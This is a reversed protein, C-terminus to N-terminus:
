KITVKCKATKGNVAYVYIYVTGKKIGKVIGTSSVTAIKKNGTKWTVKKNSASTPNVTPILRYTKGKKLTMSTKNLKVSTVPKIVTVTCTAKKSGSVTTVTIKATGKAKATVKGNSSVTAVKTNSSKWKVASLSYSPYVYAWLQYTKGINITARNRTMYVGSPTLVMKLLPDTNALSTLNTNVTNMINNWQTPSTTELKVDNDSAQFQEISTINKLYGTLEVEAGMKQDEMEYSFGATMDIDYQAQSENIDAYFEYKIEPANSMVAKQILSIQIKTQVSQADVVFLEVKIQSIADSIATPNSNIASSLENLFNDIDNYTVLFMSGLEEAVYNNMIDKILAKVETDTKLVTVTAKLAAVFETGNLDLTIKDGSVIIDDITRNETVKQFTEESLQDIFIAGIENTLTTLKARLEESITAQLDNIDIKDLDVGSIDFLKEITQGLNSNNATIFQPFLEKSKVSLINDDGYFQGTLLDANNKLLKLDYSVRTNVKDVKKVYNIAYDKLMDLGASDFLSTDDGTKLTLNEETPKTPDFHILTPNKLISGQKGQIDDMTNKLGIMFKQKATALSYTVNSGYVAYVSGCIAVIIAIVIIPKLVFKFRKFKKM